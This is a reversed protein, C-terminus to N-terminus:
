RKTIASAHQSRDSGLYTCLTAILQRQAQRKQALKYWKLEVAPAPLDKDRNDAMLRGYLCQM